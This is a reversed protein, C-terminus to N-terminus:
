SPDPHIWLSCRLRRGMVAGVQLDHPGRQLPNFRPWRLLPFHTAHPLTPLSEVALPLFAKEVGEFLFVRNRARKHLGYRPHTVKFYRRAWQQLLTALLACIISIVLNLFWLSNICRLESSHIYTPFFTPVEFHQISKPSDAVAQYINALYFNSTDQRNPRIDHISV